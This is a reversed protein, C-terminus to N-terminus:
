LFLATQDISFIAGKIFGVQKCNSVEEEEEEMAKYTSTNTLVM